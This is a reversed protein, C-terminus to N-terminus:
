AEPPPSPSESDVKGGHVRLARIRPFFQGTTAMYDRYDDGFKVILNEEEIRTRFFLATVAGVLMAAMTWSAIMVCLWICSVALFSYLPQRVFRYPGTTVLYANERVVVTRTINTGLNSLIWWLAPISVVGVGAGIWRIWRPIELRGWAVWSPDIMYALFTGMFAFGFGNISWRIAPPESARSVEGGAKDAKIRYYASIPMSIALLALLTMRFPVEPDM